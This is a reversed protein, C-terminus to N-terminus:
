RQIRHIYKDKNNQCTIKSMTHDKVYKRMNYLEIYVYMTYSLLLIKSHEIIFIYTYLIYYM